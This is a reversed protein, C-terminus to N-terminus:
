AAEFRNIRCLTDVAHALKQFIFLPLHAPNNLHKVFLLNEVLLYGTLYRYDHLFTHLFLWLFRFTFSKEADEALLFLWLWGHCGRHKTGEVPVHYGFLLCLAATQRFVGVTKRCPIRFKVPLQM